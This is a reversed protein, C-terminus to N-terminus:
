PLKEGLSHSTKRTVILIGKQFGIHKVFPGPKLGGQSEVHSPNNLSCCCNLSKIQNWAGVGVGLGVGERPEWGRASSVLQLLGRGGLLVPCRTQMQSHPCAWSQTLALTSVGSCVECLHPSPQREQCPKLGRCEREQPTGNVCSQM